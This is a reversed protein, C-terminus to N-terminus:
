YPVINLELIKHLRLSFTKFGLHIEKFPLKQKSAKNIQKISKFCVRYVLSVTKVDCCSGDSALHFFNQGCNLLVCLMCSLSQDRQFGLFLECM